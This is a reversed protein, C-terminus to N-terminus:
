AKTRDLYQQLAEKLIDQNTRRETAGLTCLRVYTGHDVKLTLAVPKEDTPDGATRAGAAQGQSRRTSTKKKL